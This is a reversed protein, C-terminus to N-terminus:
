PKPTANPVLYTIAAASLGTLATALEARDFEGSAVWQIGVALATGAAPVLAKAFSRWNM